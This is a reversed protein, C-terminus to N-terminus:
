VSMWPSRNGAYPFQACLMYANVKSLCCEPRFCPWSYNVTYVASICRCNSHIRPQGMESGEMAGKM